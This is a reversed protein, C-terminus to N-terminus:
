SHSRVRRHGGTAISGAGPAGMLRLVKPSVLPRARTPRCAPAAPERPSQVSEPAAAPVVLPECVNSEHGSEMESEIARLDAQLREREQVAPRLAQLREHLEDGIRNLLDEAM